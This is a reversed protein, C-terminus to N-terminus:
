IQLRSDLRHLDICHIACKIRANIGKRAYEHIVVQQSIM